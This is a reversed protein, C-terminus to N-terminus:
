FWIELLRNHFTLDGVAVKAMGMMGNAPTEDIVKRFETSFAV